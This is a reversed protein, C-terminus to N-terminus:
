NQRVKLRNQKLNTSILLHEQQEYENRAVYTENLTPVLFEDHFIEPDYIYARVGPIKIRGPLNQGKDNHECIWREITKYRIGHAACLEAQNCYRYKYQYSKDKTKVM